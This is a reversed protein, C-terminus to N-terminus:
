SPMLDLNRLQQLLKEKKAKKVPDPRPFPKPKDGKKGTRQWNAGQLIDIVNALLYGASDWPAEEAFMSRHLACGPPLQGALRM